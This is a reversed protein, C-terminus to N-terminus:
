FRTKTKSADNETNEKNKELIKEDKEPVDDKVYDWSQPNASGFICFAVGTGMVVGISLFFFKNWQEITQVEDTLYGVALPVMVSCIFGLTCCYAHVSASFTPAMDTSAISCGSFELGTLGLALISLVVSLNRNCGAFYIGLLCVSYGLSGMLTWFKRLFDVSTIDKKQMYFSLWAAIESLGFQLLFPASSLLGNQVIPYHLITSLFTPHVVMFHAVAWQHGFYSGALAYVPISTMIKKWPPRPRKRSFDNEQNEIIFNAEASSIRPHVKPHEFVCFLVSLSLLVGAAGLVYFSSPWRGSSECLLGSIISLLFNGLPAGSKTIAYLPGREVKPFWNVALIATTPQIMGQALGRLAQIVIIANAGVWAFPPILLTCVAIVISSVFLPWKFGFRESLMGTPIQTILYCFFFSSQIYGQIQPSWVFEGEEKDVHQTENGTTNTIHIPCSDSKVHTRQVIASNNVMAVLGISMNIRYATLSFFELFAIAVIIYRCKWFPQASDNECKEKTPELEKSITSVTVDYSRNQLKLSNFCKSKRMKKSNHALIDLSIKDLSNRNFNASIFYYVFSNKDRFSTKKCLHVGIAISFYFKQM